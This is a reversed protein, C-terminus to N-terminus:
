HLAAALDDQQALRGIAADAAQAPRHHLAQARSAGWPDAHHVRVKLMRGLQDGRQELLGLRALEVEHHRAAVALVALRFPKPQARAM